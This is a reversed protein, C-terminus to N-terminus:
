NVRIETNRDSGLKKQLVEYAGDFGLEGILHERTELAHLKSGTVDLQERILSLDVLRTEVERVKPDSAPKVGFRDTQDARFSLDPNPKVDPEGANFYLRDFGFKDFNKAAAEVKQKLRDEDEKLKAEYERKMRLEEEGLMAESARRQEELQEESKPNVIIQEGGRGPILDVVSAQEAERRLVAARELPPMAKLQVARVVQAELNFVAFFHYFRSVVYYLIVFLVAIVGFIIMLERNFTVSETAGKPRVTNLGM